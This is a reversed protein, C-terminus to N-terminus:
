SLLDRALNIVQDIEFPKQIIVAGEAELDAFWPKRSLATMIFVPIGETQLTDKMRHFTEVGDLQPMMIDSIVLSPKVAALKELGEEGDNALVVNYGAERLAIELLNQLSLDDDIILVTQQTTM